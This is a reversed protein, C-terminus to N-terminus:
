RRKFIKSLLSRKNAKKVVDADIPMDLRAARHLSKSAVKLVLRPVGGSLKHIKEFGGPTILGNSEAYGAYRLRFQLLERVGTPDLGKLMVHFQVRDRLAPVKELFRNMQEFEGNFLVSIHPLDALVRLFEGIEQFDATSEPVDDIILALKERHEIGWRRLLEFLSAPDRDADLELGLIISRLFENVSKYAAGHIFLPIAQKEPDITLISEERLAATLFECVTTKGMGLGGTLIGVKGELLLQKLGLLDEKQIPVFAEPTPLDPTFPDQRLGWKGLYTELRYDTGLKDEWLTM